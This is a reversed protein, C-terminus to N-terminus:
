PLALRTREALRLGATQSSSSHLALAQGTAQSPKKKEPWFYYVGGVVIAEVALHAVYIAALVSVGTGVAVNGSVAAAAAGLGAGVVAAVVLQKTTLGHIFSSANKSSDAVYETTAARASGLLLVFTLLLAAVFPAGRDFGFKVLYNQGAPNTM